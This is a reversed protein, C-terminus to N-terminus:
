YAIRKEDIESLSKLAKVDKFVIKNKNIDIWERAKFDSLARIVSETTTGIISAIVERTVSLIMEEKDEHIGQFTILFEALKSHIQKTGLSYIQNESEQWSKAVQQLLQKQFEAEGMLSELTEKNIICAEVENMCIASHNYESSLIVDRCGVWDGGSNILFTQERGVGSSKFTRVLGSQLCFFKDAKEGAKFLYSGKKFSLFEKKENLSDIGSHNLCHFINSFSNVCNGCDPKSIGM